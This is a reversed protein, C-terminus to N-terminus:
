TCTMATAGCYYAAGWLNAWCLLLSSHKWCVSFAVTMNIGSSSASGTGSVFRGLCRYSALLYYHRVDHNLSSPNLGTAHWHAAHSLDGGRTAIMSHCTAKDGM